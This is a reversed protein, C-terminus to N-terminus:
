KLDNKVFLGMTSELTVAVPLSFCCSEAPRGATRGDMRMGVATVVRWRVVM